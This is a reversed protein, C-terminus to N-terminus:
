KRLILNKLQLLKNIFWYTKPKLIMDLPGLFIREVGKYSEKFQGYGSNKDFGGFDYFDLKESRAIKIAAIHVLYQLHLRFSTETNGGLLYLLTNNLSIGLWVCHPQNDNDYIVIIRAFDQLFFTQLYEKSQTNFGQRASTQSHIQWFAEFNEQTKDTSVRIQKDDVLKLTKRSYRRVKENTSNWFLETENYAQQLNIESKLIPLDALSRVTCSLYQIPKATLNIQDPFTPYFFDYMQTNFEINLVKTLYDDFDIKLFAISNEASNTIKQTLSNLSTELDKKTINNNKIIPGKPIYWFKQGLQWPYEYVYCFLEENEFYHYNHKKGSAKLWFELWAKTQLFYFPYPRM